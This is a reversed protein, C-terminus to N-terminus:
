RPIIEGNDSFKKHILPAKGAEVANVAQFIFMMSGPNLGAKKEAYKTASEESLFLLDPKAEHHITLIDVKVAKMNIM